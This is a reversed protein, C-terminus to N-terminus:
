NIIYVCVHLCETYYVMNLIYKTITILQRHLCVCTSMGYLLGYEFHIKYNHNTSSTFVCM